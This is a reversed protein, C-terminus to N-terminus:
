MMELSQLFPNDVSDDDTEKEEQEEDTSTFEDMLPIKSSWWWHSASKEKKPQHCEELLAQEALARRPCKAILHELVTEGAPAKWLYDGEGLYVANHLSPSLTAKPLQAGGGRRHDFTFRSPYGNVVLDDRHRSQQPALFEHVHRAQLPELYRRKKPDEEEEEKIVASPTEEEDEDFLPHIVRRVTGSPYHQKPAFPPMSPDLRPAQKKRRSPHNPPLQYPHFYYDTYEALLHSPFAPRWSVLGTGKEYAYSDWVNMEIANNPGVSGLFGRVFTKLLSSPGKGRKSGRRDNRKQRFVSDDRAKTRYQAMKMEENMYQSYSHSGLHVHHLM